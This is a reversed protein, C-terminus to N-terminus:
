LGFMEEGITMNRYADLAPKLDRLLSSSMAFNCHTLPGESNNITVGCAEWSASM